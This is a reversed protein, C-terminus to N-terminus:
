RQRTRCPITNRWGSVWKEWLDCGVKEWIESKLLYKIEGGLCGNRGYTAGWKGWIEFHSEKKHLLGTRHPAVRRQVALALRARLGLARGSATAVAAAASAYVVSEDRRLDGLITCSFEAGIFHACCIRIAGGCGGCGSCGSGGQFLRSRSRTSPVSPHGGTGHRRWAGETRHTQPELRRETLAPLASTEVSLAASAFCVRRLSCRELHDGVSVERGPGGAQGGKADGGIVCGRHAGVTSGGGGHVWGWRPGMM